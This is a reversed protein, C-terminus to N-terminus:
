LCVGLGQQFGELLASATIAASSPGVCDVKCFVGCRTVVGGRERNQLCHSREVPHVTNHCSKYQIIDTNYHNNTFTGLKDSVPSM